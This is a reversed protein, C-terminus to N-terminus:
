KLPNATILSKIFYLLLIAISHTNEIKANPKDAIISLKVAVITSIEIRCFNTAFLDSLSHYAPNITIAALAPPAHDGIPSTVVVM